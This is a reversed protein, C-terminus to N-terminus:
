GKIFPDRWYDTSPSNSRMNNYEVGVETKDDKIAQKLANNYDEYTWIDFEAVKQYGAGVKVNLPTNLRAKGIIDGMGFANKITVERTVADYSKVNDFKFASVQPLVGVLLCVVAILLIASFRERLWNRETKVM